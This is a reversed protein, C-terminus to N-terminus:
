PCLRDLIEEKWGADTIRPVKAFSARVEPLICDVSVGAGSFIAAARRQDAAHHGGRGGPPPRQHVGSLRRGGGALINITNRDLEDAIFFTFVEKPESDAKLNLAHRLVPEWEGRKQAQKNM